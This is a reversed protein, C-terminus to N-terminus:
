EHPTQRLFRQPATPDNPDLTDLFQRAASMRQTFVEGRAKNLAALKTAAEIGDPGLKILAAEDGSELARRLENARVEAAQRERLQQERQARQALINERQAEMQLMQMDRLRNQEAQQQAMQQGAMFGQAITPARELISFDIPM